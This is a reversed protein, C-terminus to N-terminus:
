VRRDHRPGQRARDEPAPARGANCSKSTAVLTALSDSSNSQESDLMQRSSDHETTVLISTVVELRGEVATKRCLCSFLKVGYVHCSQQSLHELM